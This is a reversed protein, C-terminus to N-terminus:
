QMKKVYRQYKKFQGPRKVAWEAEKEAMWETHVEPLWVQRAILAQQEADSLEQWMGAGVREICM